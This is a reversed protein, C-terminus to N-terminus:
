AVLDREIEHDPENFEGEKFGDAVVLIQMGDEPLISANEARNGHTVQLAFQIPCLNERACLVQFLRHFFSGFGELINWELLDKRGAAVRAAIQFVVIRQAPQCGAQSRFIVWFQNARGHHFFDIGLGKAGQGSFPADLGSAQSSPLGDRAQNSGLQIGQFGMFQPQDFIQMALWEVRQIFGCGEFDGPQVGVGCGNPQFISGPLNQLFFLQGSFGQGPQGSEQFGITEGGGM